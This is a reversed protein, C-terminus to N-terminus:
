NESVRGTRNLAFLMDRPNQLNHSVGKELEDIVDTSLKGRLAALASRTREIIRLSNVEAVRLWYYADRDSQEVGKGELHAFGLSIEDRHTRGNVLFFLLEIRNSIRLKEFIRFLYNKITHESLDLQSAIQKNTFGQAALEAVKTERPTLKRLEGVAECSPINRIAELLYEAEASGVWIRGESVSAICKRFESLPENRCFVGRAGNHFSAIVADRELSDLLIVISIDPSRKSLSRALEMGQRSGTELEASVVAVDATGVRSSSILESAPAIATAKLHPDRALSEALLQSSMSNRDAVLIRLEEPQSHTEPM